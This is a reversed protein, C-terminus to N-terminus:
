GVAANVIEVVDALANAEINERLRQVNAPVPEIAVIRGGRRLRRGLQVAYAGINAGVDLVVADPELLREMRTITETDYEGTWFITEQLDAVPDVYLQAGNRLIVRVVRREAPSLLFRTMWRGVRLRGRMGACARSGLGALDHLAFRVQQPILSM